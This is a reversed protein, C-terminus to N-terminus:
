VFNDGECHWAVRSGPAHHLLEAHRAIGGVIENMRTQRLAM